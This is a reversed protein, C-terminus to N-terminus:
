LPAQLFPQGPNLALQLTLFCAESQETNLRTAVAVDIV